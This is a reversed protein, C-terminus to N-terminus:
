QEDEEEFLLPKIEICYDCTGCNCDSARLEAKLENEAKACREALACVKKLWYADFPTGYPWPPEGPKWRFFENVIDLPDVM